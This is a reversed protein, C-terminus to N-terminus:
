NKSKKQKKSVSRPKFKKTYRAGAKTSKDFISEVVNGAWEQPQELRFLRAIMSATNVTFYIDQIEGQKIGEGRMSFPINMENPTYGGHGYNIGGHDTLFFTYMKEYMGAAKLKNILIGIQVDAEEISKLYEPSMWKHGHGAHDTHVDYLFVFWSKDRNASMFEFAREFNPIYGDNELYSKEDIFKPNMANILPKWNWYYATLVEPAQDKIVKFISPYYGEADKSMSELKYKNVIWSNDIVGHREPGSGCLMSTWNPLTVSPIINRVNYSWAGEKMLQDINPTKAALLGETSIGDLSILLVQTPEQAKMPTLLAWLCCLLAFKIKM